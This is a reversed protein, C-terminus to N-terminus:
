IWRTRKSLSKASVLCPLHEDMLSSEVLQWFNNRDAGTVVAKEHAESLAVPYGQGRRCQDWVLSHTLNLLNDDKAAWGPMEVRAIEDEVRIYFFHVAHEGYREKVISSQSAFLASRDGDGLLNLFLERDRIGSISDCEKTQCDPCHKDTDLTDHPCLAVRLANIVDSSSTFSIYSALGLKKDANAKRIKDMYRLFGKDLLAETVFDPYPELNWKILSGDLLAVSSGGPPLAAALEALRRCEEVSMKIGLLTGEVPQRRGKGGAPAIVMDEDESYLRPSSDLVANPSAGYSLVAWGINILYCRVPRHRDIDIQSGDTALVTFDKPPPSAQHCNDIGDVLGAVLWTTNSAAIKQKLSDFQTAQHHAAEVANQLRRQREAMGDKMRATMSGTQEAVRSLDLSM